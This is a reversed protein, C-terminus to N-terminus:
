DDRGLAYMALESAVELLLDDRIVDIAMMSSRGDFFLPALTKELVNEGDEVSQIYSEAHGVDLVPRVGVNNQSLVFSNDAVDIEGGGVIIEHLYEQTRYDSQGFKEILPYRDREVDSAGDMYGTRGVLVVNRDQGDILTEVTSIANDTMCCAMFTVLAATKRIEIVDEMDSDFFVKLKHPLKDLLSACMNEASRAYRSNTDYDYAGIDRSNSSMLVGICDLDSRETVRYADMASKIDIVQQDSLLRWHDYDDLVVTTADYKALIEFVGDYQTMSKVDLVYCPTSGASLRQLYAVIYELSRLEAAPDSQRTYELPFGVMGWGYTGFDDEIGTSLRGTKVGSDALCVVRPSTIASVPWDGVNRGVNEVFSRQGDAQFAMWEFHRGWWSPDGADRETLGYGPEEGFRRVYAGRSAMSFDAHEGALSFGSFCVGRAYSSYRSYLEEVLVRMPESAAYFSMVPEYEQAGSPDLTVQQYARHASGESTDSWLGCGICMTIAIGYGALRKVVQTVHDGFTRLGFDEASDSDWLVIGDDAVVLLVEDVGSRMVDDAVARERGICTRADLVMAYRMVNYSGSGMRNVFKWRNSAYKQVMWTEGVKPVPSPLNNGWKVDLTANYPTTCTAGNPSVAKVSVIEYMEKSFYDARGM